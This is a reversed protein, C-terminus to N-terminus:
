VSLSNGQEKAFNDVMIKVQQNSKHNIKSIDKYGLFGLCTGVVSLALGAQWAHSSIFQLIPKMFNLAEVNKLKGSAAVGLGLLCVLGLGAVEAIAKRPENKTIINETWSDLKKANEPNKMYKGLFFEAAKKLKPDAEGCIDVIQTIHESKIRQLYIGSKKMTTKLASEFAKISSLIKPNHAFKKEPDTEKSNNIIQIITEPLKTGKSKHHQLYNSKQNTDPNVTFECTLLDPLTKSVHDIIEPDTIKFLVPNGDKDRVELLIKTYTSVPKTTSKSDLAKYLVKKLNPNTESAKIVKLILDHVDSEKPISKKFDVPLSLCYAVYEDNEKVDELKIIGKDLKEMFNKREIDAFEYVYGFPISSSTVVSANLKCLKKHLDSGLATQTLFDSIIATIKIRKFAKDNNDGRNLLMNGEEDHRMPLYTRNYDNYLYFKTINDVTILNDMFFNIIDDNLNGAKIRHEIIQEINLGLLVGDELPIFKKLETLDTSDKFATEVKEIKDIRVLEKSAYDLFQKQQDTLTMKNRSEKLRADLSADNNLFKVVSELTKKKIDKYENHGDNIQKDVAKFFNEFANIKGEFESLFAGFNSYGSIAISTRSGYYSPPGAEAFDTYHIKVGDKPDHSFSFKHEQKITGKHNKTEFYMDNEFRVEMEKAM